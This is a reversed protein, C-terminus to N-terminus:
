GREGRLWRAAFGDIANGFFTGFLFGAGNGCRQGLEAVLGHQDSEALVDGGKGCLQATQLGVQCEIETFGKPALAALLHM